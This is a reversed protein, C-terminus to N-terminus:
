VRRYTLLRHCALSGNLLRWTTRSLWLTRWVFILSKDFVTGAFSYTKILIRQKCKDILYKNNWSGTVMRYNRVETFKMQQTVDWAHTDSMICRDIRFKLMGGPMGRTNSQADHGPSPPIQVNCQFPPSNSGSKDRRRVYYAWSSKETKAPNSPNVLYFKAKTLSYSKWFPRQFFTSPTMVAYRERFPTYLKSQLRFKDKLFPLETSIPPANSRSLKARLPPFKFLGIKLLEFARPPTNFKRISQRM